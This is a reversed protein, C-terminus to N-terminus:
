EERVTLGLNARTNNLKDGDIHWVRTKSDLVGMIDRSMYIGKKKGKKYSFRMAHGTGSYCWKYKNVTEYIDDDVLASEGRSLEIFKPM